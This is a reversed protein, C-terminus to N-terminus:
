DKFSQAEFSWVGDTADYDIFRLGNLECFRRLSKQYKESMSTVDGNRGKKARPLMGELTVKAPADLQSAENQPSVAVEGRDIEVCNDIVLGRVDVPENWEIKGYGERGITFGEVHQLEEMTRAGLEQGSPITYYGARSNVPLYKLPDYQDPSALGKNVSWQSPRKASWLFSSSDNQDGTTGHMQDRPTQEGDTAGKPSDNENLADVDVVGNELDHDLRGGDSDGFGNGSNENANENATDPDQMQTPTILPGLRLPTDVESGRLPRRKTGSFQKPTLFPTADVFGHKSNKIPSDPQNQSRSNDAPNGVSYNSPATSNRMPTRQLDMSPRVSKNASGNRVGSSLGLTLRNAGFKPIAPPPLIVISMSENQKSDGQKTISQNRKQEELLRNNKALDDQLRQLNHLVTAYNVGPPAVTTGNHHVVSNYSDILTPNQGANPLISVSGVPNAAPTAFAGFGTNLPAVTSPFSPAPATAGFGLAGSNAGFQGQAPQPQPLNGYSINPQAGFLGTGSQTPATQGFLTTSNGSGNFLSSGSSQGFLPQSQPPAGFASSQGFSSAQGFSATSSPFGVAGGFGSASQVNGFVGAGSQAGFAAGNTAGFLGGNPQAPVSSAGFAGGGSGFLSTSSAGGFAPQSSTNNGFGTAQGFGSTSAGFVGTTPAPQTTSGFLPAGGGSSAISGTKNGAGYDEFRLEELCRDRLQQMMSISHYKSQTGPTTDFEVTLQWNVGATGCQQQTGNSAGFVSNSQAGFLSSSSSSGFLSSSGGFPTSSGFASSSAGWASQSQGFTSSGFAGASASQNAFLTSGSSSGFLSTSGFASSSTGFPASPAGFASSQQGGFGTGGFGPASSGFASSSGGFGSNSGGFAPASAGFTGSSTGFVSGGFGSSQGFGGFASQQQQPQSAGFLVNTGNQAGFPTNAAGFPASSAGFASTAGFASSQQGFAGFASM